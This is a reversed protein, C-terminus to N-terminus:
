KEELRIMDRRRIMENLDNGQDSGGNKWRNAYVKILNRTKWEVCKGRLSYKDNEYDIGEMGNWNLEDM